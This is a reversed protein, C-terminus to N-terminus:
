MLNTDSVIYPLLSSVHAALADHSQGQAIDEDSLAGAIPSTQLDAPVNGETEFVFYAEGTEGVKMVFPVENDNM